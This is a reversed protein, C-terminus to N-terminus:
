SKPYAQRLCPLHLHDTKNYTYAYPMALHIHAYRSEVYTLLTLASVTLINIWKKRLPWNIPLEPDDNGNWDVVDNETKGPARDFAQLDTIQSAREVDYDDARMQHSEQHNLTCAIQTTAM